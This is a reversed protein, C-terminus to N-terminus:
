VALYFHRSLPGLLAAGHRGSATAPSLLPLRRSTGLTIRDPRLPTIM